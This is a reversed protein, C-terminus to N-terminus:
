SAMSKIMLQCIEIRLREHMKILSCKVKKELFISRGVVFLEVNTKGSIVVMNQARPCLFISCLIGIFYQRSCFFSTTLIVSQRLPFHELTFRGYIDYGIMMNYSM